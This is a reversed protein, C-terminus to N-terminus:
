AYTVTIERQTIIQFNYEIYYGLADTDHSLDLNSKDIRGKDDYSMQELDQTLEKNRECIYLRVDGNGNKLRSNVLNVRDQVRPNATKILQNNFGAERLLDYNTRGTGQSRSNGSADGFVTANYLLDGLYSFKEKLHVLADVLPVNRKIANDIVYTKGDIEQILYIASYPSLNFDFSLVLPLKTDIERNKIVHTDRNFQHYVNNGNINIFQGLTYQALLKEDYNERLTEIYGEPLYPNSMTTARVVLQNETANTIYKNYLFKYGEPTGICDVINPENNPLPSRNRALIQEYVRNMKVMPIADAEDILSFGCEYGIIFQPESMSRFLIKGYGQIDLEKKSLNLQYHLGLMNCVEPYKVFAIDALLPYTPLYSCVRIGPYKLKMIITKLAGCWSKGAGLGAVLCTSLATSEIFERQHPLVSVEKVSM